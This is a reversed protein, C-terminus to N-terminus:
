CNIRKIKRKLEEREKKLKIKELRKAERARHEEVYRRKRNLEEICKTVVAEKKHQRLARVLKEAANVVSSLLARERYLYQTLRKLEGSPIINM